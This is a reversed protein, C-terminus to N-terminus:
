NRIFHPMETPIEISIEILGAMIGNEYWPSQHILKKIGNKLITYSNPTGSSFLETIKAKSNENHFDFINKGILSSGGYKEFVQESKKNMYIFKGNLDCITVASPFEDFYKLSKNM